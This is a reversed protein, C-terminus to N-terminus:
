SNQSLDNRNANQLTVVHNQCRNQIALSFLQVNENATQCIFQSLYIMGVCEHCYVSNLVQFYMRNTMLM